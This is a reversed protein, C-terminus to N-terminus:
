SRVCEAGDNHPVGGNSLKRPRTNLKWVIHDLQRLSFVSLDTGKPIYPGLLGNISENIGCAAESCRSVATPTRVAGLHM